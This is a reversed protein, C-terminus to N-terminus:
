LQNKYTQNRKFLVFAKEGFKKYSINLGSLVKKVADKVQYNNIRCTVKKNDVLNDQYIFNVGAQIRIDELVSRLSQENCNLSINKENFSQSLYSSAQVAFFIFTLLVLRVTNLM